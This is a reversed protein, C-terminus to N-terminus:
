KKTFTARNFFLHPVKHTATGKKKIKFAKKKKNIIQKDNKKTKKKGYPISRVIKIWLLVSELASTPYYRSYKEAISHVLVHKTEHFM